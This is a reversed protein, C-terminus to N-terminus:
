RPLAVVKRTRRRGDMDVEVFYVGAAPEGGVRADWVVSYRGPAHTRAPERHVVRGSVDYIRLRVVGATSVDYRIRAGVNSPGAGWARVPNPFVPHLALTPPATISASVAPELEGAPGAWIALPYREGAIADLTLSPTIRPDVIAGTRGDAVRVGVGDPLAEVNPWTIEIDADSPTFPVVLMLDWRRVGPELARVDASLSVGSDSVFALTPEPQPRPFERHDWADIGASAAPHVAAYNDADLWGDGRAVVQLAWAEPESLAFGEPHRPPPAPSIPADPDIVVTDPGPSYVFYGVFPELRTLPGASYAENSYRRLIPASGPWAVDFAFPSGIQNWGPVLDLTVPALPVADGSFTFRTSVGDSRFWKFWFASGSEVTMAEAYNAVYTGSDASASEWKFVAWSEDSPVGLAPFLASADTSALATPISVLHWTDAALGVNEFASGSQGTDAGAGAIAPTAEGTTVHVGDSVLIEYRAGYVGLLTEPVTATFTTVGSETNASMDISTLFVGGGDPNGSWVIFQGLLNAEDTATVTVADATMAVPDPDDFVPTGPVTTDRRLDLVHPTTRTGCQETFINLQDPTADDLDIGLAILNVTGTWTGDGAAQAIVVSPGGGVPEAVVDTLPAATGVLIVGSADDVAVEGPTFAWPPVGNAGVVDPDIVAGDSFRIAPSDVPDSWLSTSRGIRARANFLEDVVTYPATDVDDQTITYSGVYRFGDWILPIDAIWAFGDPRVLALATVRADATGDVDFDLVSGVGFCDLAEGGVDVRVESVVPTTTDFPFSGSAIGNSSRNAGDSVTSFGRVTGTVGGGEALSAPVIYEFTQTEFAVHEDSVADAQSVLVLADVDIGFRTLLTDEAADECVVEVTIADGVTVPSGEPADTNLAVTPTAPTHNDFKFARLARESVLGDELDIKTEYYGDPLVATPLLVSGRYDSGGAYSLGTTFLPDTIFFSCTDASFYAGSTVRIALSDADNIVLTSRESEVIGGGRVASQAASVITVPQSDIWLRSPTADLLRCSCAGSDICEDEFTPGNCLHFEVDYLGDGLGLADARRTGRWRQGGIYALNVEATQSGEVAVLVAKATDGASGTTVIDFLMTEDPRFTRPNRNPSPDMAVEVIPPGGARADPALVGILVAALAALGWPRFRNTM